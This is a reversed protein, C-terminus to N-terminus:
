RDVVATASVPPAGFGRLVPEDIPGGTGAAGPPRYVVLRIANLPAEGPTVTADRARVDDLVLVRLGGAVEFPVGVPAGLADGVRLAPSGDPAGQALPGLSPLVGRIPAHSETAFLWLWVGRADRFRVSTSRALRRSARETDVRVPDRPPWAVAEGPPLRVRAVVRGADGDSAVLRVGGAWADASRPARGSADLARLRVRADRLPAIAEVAVDARGRLRAAPRRGALEAPSTPSPRPRSTTEALPLDGLASPLRGENAWERWPGTGTGCWPEPCPGEISKTAADPAARDVVDEARRCGDCGPAAVAAAALLPWSIGVDRLIM